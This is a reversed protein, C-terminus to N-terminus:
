LRSFLSLFLAMEGLNVSGASSLGRGKESQTWCLEVGCVGHEAKARM